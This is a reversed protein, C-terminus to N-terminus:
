VTRSPQATRISVNPGIPPGPRRSRPTEAKDPDPRLAPSPRRAAILGLCLPAIFLPAAVYRYSEVPNAALVTLQQGVLIGALAYVGPRRRGLAYCALAAYAIYCWTAGRWLLWDLQPVRFLTNVWVAAKHATTSLPHPVFVSLYASGEMKGNPSIRGAKPDGTSAPASWGWLDKPVDLYPLQTTAGQVSRDSTPAWAIHGRCIRAGVIVDPRKKLVKTWIELLRETNREAAAHDFPAWSNTLLDASHCNSGQQWTSLPAVAEMAALDSKSFVAPAQQYAVAIDSYNLAFVSDPPPQKVGAAPYLWLQAVLPVAVTVATLVSMRIRRGPLAIALAAGAILAVGLGNNRFLGLGLLGATLVLLDFRASGPRLGWRGQWTPRKTNAILRASAAFVLVASIFFPM